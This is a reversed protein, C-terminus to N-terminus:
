ADGGQELTIRLWKEMRVGDVVGSYMRSKIAREHYGHENYFSRAAVNDRRAELRIRKAGAIRASRELWRLLASGVGQRQKSAHVAFLVLHADEELYEMIGFAVLRGQVRVIAVNMDASLIARAVRSPHWSWPLGHEIFERSMEAIDTADGPSALRIPPDVTVHHRAAFKRPSPGHTFRAGQSLMSMASAKVRADTALASSIAALRCPWQGQRATRM